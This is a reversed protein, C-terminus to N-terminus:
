KKGKLYGEWSTLKPFGFERGVRDKALNRFQPDLMKPLPKKYGYKYPREVFDKYQEEVKNIHSQYMAPYKSLPAKGFEGGQSSTLQFDKQNCLRVYSRDPMTCRMLQWENLIAAKIVPMHNFESGNNGSSKWSKRYKIENLLEEKTKERPV